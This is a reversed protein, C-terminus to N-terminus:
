KFLLPITLAWMLMNVASTGYLALTPLDQPMTVPGHVAEVSLTIAAGACCCCCWWWAVGVVDGSRSGGKCDTWCSSCFHTM